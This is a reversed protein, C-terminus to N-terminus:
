YFMFEVRRNKENKLLNSNDNLPRQDGYGLIKIRSQPIGNKIIYDAITKAREESLKQNYNHSGVSDTHGSIVIKLSPNIIMTKVIRDLDEYAHDKIEYKNFDFSINEFVYWNNTMYETDPNFIYREKQLRIKNEMTILNLLEKDHDEIVRTLRVNDIYYYSIIDSGGPNDKWKTIKNDRFNGIIMYEEGGKAIFYGSLESWGSHSYVFVGEKTEIQPVFPLHGIYKSSDLMESSIYVGLRDTSYKSSNALAYFLRIFYKQSKILKHTFKTQLYERTNNQRTTDFHMMTILGTYAYGSQADRYGMSNKPVGSNRSCKNFYDSTGMSPLTWNPILEFRPKNTLSPPCSIFIEFDANPVLNQSISLVPKLLIAGSFLILYLYLHNHIM